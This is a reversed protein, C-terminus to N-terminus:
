MSAPPLMSRDVPELPDIVIDVMVDPVIVPMVGPNPRVPPPDSPETVNPTFSETTAVRVPEVNVPATRKLEPRVPDRVRNGLPDGYRTPVGEMVSEVPELPDTLKM